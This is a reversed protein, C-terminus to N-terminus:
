NLTAWSDDGTTSVKPNVRVPDIKCAFNALADVLHHHGCISGIHKKCTLIHDGLPDICM